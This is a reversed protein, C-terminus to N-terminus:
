SCYPLLNQYMLRAARAPPIAYLEDNFMEIAYLGSYGNRDLAGIIEKLNLCGQGPLVRDSNCNSLEGSKDRMDNLHVHRILPVSGANIQDLKTPTCHYHATDFLVGARLNGSRKAAEVATRLSKVVPSWNFELLPSVGYQEIRGAAAALAEAIVGVPDACPQSPGDTGVVLMTGGLAALLEASAAILGLNKERAGPNSFCELAHEFGGACQLGNDDLLKRAGAPSGGKALYERVQWLSFEVHKFGAERFASLMEPLNGKVSVSNIALQEVKM